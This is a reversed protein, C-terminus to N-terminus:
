VKKKRSNINACTLVYRPLNWDFKFFWMLFDKEIQSKCIYVYM